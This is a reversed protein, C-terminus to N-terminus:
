GAWSEPPMAWRTARTRVSILSGSIRSSSSGKPARSANVRILMCSSISFMQTSRRCSARITVWLM